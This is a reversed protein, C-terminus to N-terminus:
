SRNVLNRLYAAMRDNQEVLLVQQQSIRELLITQKKVEELQLELLHYLEQNDM